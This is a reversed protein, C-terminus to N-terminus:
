THWQRLPVASFVPWPPCYRWLTAIVDGQHLTIAQFLIEGLLLISIQVTHYPKMAMCNPSTLDTKSPGTNYSPAFCLWLLFPHYVSLLAKIHAACLRCYRVTFPLYINYRLFADLPLDTMKIYTNELQHRKFSNMSVHHTQDFYHYRGPSCCTPTLNLTMFKEIYVNRNMLRSSGKVDKYNELFIAFIHQLTTFYAVM